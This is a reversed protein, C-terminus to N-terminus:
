TVPKEARVALYYGSWFRIGTKELWDCARYTRLLLPSVGPLGVCERLMALWIAPARPVHVIASVHTIRLGLASFERVIDARNYTAGVFYPVLRLKALWGFPLGNRLRVIPNHPNDFTAILCGGPALCRELEGLAVAIDHKDQFHDLSSGSIVNGLSQGAFPLHRLDAVLMPPAGRPAMNPNPGGIRHAAAQVVGPSIDMGAARPGLDNFLHYPTVAEEFLDTKLTYGAHTRPLWRALLDRYAAQMYARWTASADQSAFTHAIDDWYATDPQM